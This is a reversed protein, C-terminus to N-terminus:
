SEFSATDDYGVFSLLTMETRVIKLGIRLGIPCSRGSSPAQTVPNVKTDVNGCSLSGLAVGRQAYAFVVKKSLRGAVAPWM